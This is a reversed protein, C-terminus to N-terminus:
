MERVGATADDMFNVVLQTLAADFTADAWPLREAPTERADAGPVREAVTAAFGPSPEAAAVHEAGAIEALVVTLAGTGAGVDLVRTGPGIGAFRALLPSLRRSYRGMFRDYNDAPVSFSM